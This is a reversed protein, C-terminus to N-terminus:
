RVPVEEVAATWGANARQMALTRDADLRLEMKRIEGTEVARRFSVVSGPLMRRPDQHEELASLLANAEIEALQARELLQSLTEGPRLTDKVEVDVPNAMAAPLLGRRVTPPKARANWAFSGMLGGVSAMMFLALFRYPKPM